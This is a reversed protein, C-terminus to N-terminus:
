DSTVEQDERDGGLRTDGVSGPSDEICENAMKRTKPAVVRGMCVTAVRTGFKFISFLKDQGIRWARGVRLIPARERGGCYWTNNGLNACPVM